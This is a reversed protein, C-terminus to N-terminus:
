FEMWLNKFDWLVPGLQSLWQIGLVMDCGGFPILRMDARFERGQMSWVLQKCTAASAIKSGNAVAVMLPKDQQVECVTRKAVLVDLFNYTSGSDILIIIRKKKINGKIRM